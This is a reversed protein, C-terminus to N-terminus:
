ARGTVCFAASAMETGNVIVSLRHIGEYHKRTTMDMFSQTKAIVANGQFERKESIQFVKRSATGNAKVYDIAYELRIPQPETVDLEFSFALKDGIQISETVKLGDVTIGQTRGFGFLRLAEENGKKLLTRLAHKVIWDTHPHKGLWRGGLELVLEPHDKSIDNLNNAVSRRVYDSDDEKLLELIPLIPAPDAIMMRLPFSWPLRPRCGESALRRIHHNSHHAWELMMKMMREPDKVIFPRVAFESSACATFEALAAMSVDWDKEDMGFVEVFDSLTVYQFGGQCEPAIAKLV